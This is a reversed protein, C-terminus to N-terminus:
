GSLAYAAALWRRVRADVHAPSELRLEVHWRSKSTQERKVVRPGDLDRDSKVTLILADKRTAVGAFATRRNLHISTQKPDEAFPGLTKAARLLAAYTAKVSPARGEFHRAVDPSPARPM